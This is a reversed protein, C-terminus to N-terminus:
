NQEMTSLEALNELFSLRDVAARLIKSKTPQQNFAEIRKKKRETAIRRRESRNEKRAAMKATRHNM